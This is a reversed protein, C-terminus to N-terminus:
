NKKVDEIIEDNLLPKRGQGEKHLLGQYEDKGWRKQWNNGTVTTISIFNSAMQTSFGIKKFLLYFLRKLVDIKKEKEILSILHSIETEEDENSYNFNEVINKMNNKTERLSEYYNDIEVDFYTNLLNQTGNYSYNIGWKEKILKIVDNIFWKKQSELITKLENIQKDNLKAKRGQGKKPLLSNYGGENWQDELNYATSKKISALNYSEIKTFGMAKFKFYLLKKFIKVDKEDDMLLIIEDLSLNSKSKLSELGM